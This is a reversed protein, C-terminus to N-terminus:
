GRLDDEVEDWWEVGADDRDLETDDEGPDFPDVAETVVITLLARGEPITDPLQVCVYRDAAIVIETKYSRM